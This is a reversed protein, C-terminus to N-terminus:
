NRRWEWMNGCVVVTKAALISASHVRVRSTITGSNNAILVTVKGVSATQEFTVSSGEALSIEVGPEVIGSISVHIRRQRSYIKAGRRVNVISTSESLELSERSGVERLTNMENGSESLHRYRELYFGSPAFASAKRDKPGHGPWAKPWQM